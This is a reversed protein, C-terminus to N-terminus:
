DVTGRQRPDHELIRRRQAIELPDDMRRNSRPDERADVSGLRTVSRGDDHLRDLEHFAPQGLQAVLDPQDGTIRRHLAPAEAVPADRVVIGLPPDGRL